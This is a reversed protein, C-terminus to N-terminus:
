CCTYTEIASKKRFALPVDDDAIIFPVGTKDYKQVFGSGPPDGKLILCEDPAFGNIGHQLGLDFPEYNKTTAVTTQRFDYQANWLVLIGEPAVVRDIAVIAKEFDEFSFYPEPDVPPFRCLVSMCFVLDYCHPLSDLERVYLGTPDHARAITLCAEDQEVGHVVNWTNNKITKLSRVEEGTSCGFSLVRGLPVISATREFIEPYRNFETCTSDQFQRLLTKSM